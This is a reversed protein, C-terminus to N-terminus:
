IVQKTTEYGLIDLLEESKQRNKFLTTSLLGNEDKDILIHQPHPILCHQLGGYGSIAEQYAGTNFFGIYLPREQQFKPLYLDNACGENSYYDDGDCTLGGLLVKEYHDHWGNLPLMMFKKNIAWTDPLTNIFSSDIIYWKETDNQYKQELVKFIVGGSEGVTFSGFETFIDPYPIKAKTCVTGILDVISQIIGQYDYDFGLSNKIPLGGGINLSNLSPCIRKLEVYIRLCKKLESWYYSSDSIGTNIFFHLMKLTVKNNDKISYKYFPVIDQYGIGLRSTRFEFKPKEESAIRLGISLKGVVTRCLHTLEEFNDLVPICRDHGGNILSAISNVYEPQKFGNCIIYTNRDIKNQRILRGVIDIDFNSSIEIHVDNKIVEQIIPEFHSSKTCYCYHYRARYDTKEFATRFWAKTKNINEPIKPLLTFKLPSGYQGVLSMLDIGHFLLNSGKLSINEQPFEFTQDIFDIYKTNM